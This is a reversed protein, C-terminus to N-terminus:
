TEATSAEAARRRVCQKESRRREGNPNGHAHDATKLVAEVLTHEMFHTRAAVNAITIIDVAIASPGASL